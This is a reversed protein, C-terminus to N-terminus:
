PNIKPKYTSAMIKKLELELQQNNIISLKSKNKSVPVHILLLDDKVSTSTQYRKFEIDILNAIAIAFKSEVKLYTVEKLKSERIEADCYELLAKLMNLDKNNYAYPLISITETSPNYAFVGYQKIKRGIVQHDYSQNKIINLARTFSKIDKVTSNYDNDLLTDLISEIDDSSKDQLVKNKVDEILDKIFKDKDNTNSDLSKIIVEHCITNIENISSTIDKLEIISISKNKAM